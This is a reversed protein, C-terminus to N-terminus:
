GNGPIHLADLSVTEKTFSGALAGADRCHYASRASALEAGRWLAARWVCTLIQYKASVPWRSTVEPLRIRWGRTSLASRRHRFLTVDIRHLLGLGFAATEGSRDGSWVCMMERWSHRTVGRGSCADNLIAWGTTLSSSPPPCFM